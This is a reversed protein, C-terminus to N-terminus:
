GCTACVGQGDFNGKSEEWSTFTADRETGCEACNFVKNKKPMCGGINKKLMVQTVTVVYDEIFVSGLGIPLWM